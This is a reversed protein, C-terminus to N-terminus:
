EKVAIAQAAFQEAWQQFSLPDKGTVDKVTTTVKGAHGSGKIVELEYYFDIREPSMGNESAWNRYAEESMHIYATGTTRGLGYKAVVAASEAETLAEPGTIELKQGNYKEPNVLVAAVVNGIDRAGIYAIKGNGSAGYVAGSLLQSFTGPLSWNEYFWNPAVIASVLKSDLIVKEAANFDQTVPGDGNLIAGIGVIAKISSEPQSAVREIRTYLHSWRLQGGVAIAVRDIGDFAKAISEENEYDFFRVEGVGAQKLQSESRAPDRSGAVIDAPEVGLERLATITALGTKSTGSTIFYRPM